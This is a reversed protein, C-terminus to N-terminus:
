VSVVDEDRYLSAAEIEYTAQLLDQDNRREAVKRLFKIEREKQPDGALPVGEAERMTLYM